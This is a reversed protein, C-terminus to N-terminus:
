CEKPKWKSGEAAKVKQVPDHTHTPRQQVLDGGGGGGELEERGQGHQSGRLLTAIKVSCCSCCCCCSLCSTSSCMLTAVASSDSRVEQRAGTRREAGAHCARVAGANTFTQLVRRMDQGGARGHPVPADVATPEIYYQLLSILAAVLLLLTDASGVNRSSSSCSGSGSYESAHRAWL